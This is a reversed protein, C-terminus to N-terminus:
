QEANQTTEVLHLFSIFRPHKANVIHQNRLSSQLRGLQPQALRAKRSNKKKETNKEPTLADQTSVRKTKQDPTWCYM